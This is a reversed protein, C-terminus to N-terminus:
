VYKFEIRTIITEPTCGKHSNCFFRVFEDPEMEPFGELIVESRGYEILDTLTRLKDPEATVVEIVALKVVHEGKPIGQCKECAQLRDGPKLNLWGMRRTVTKTRERVQRTTLSFSINRM